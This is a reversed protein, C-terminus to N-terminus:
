VASEDGIGSRALLDSVLELRLLPNDLSMLGQKVRTPLPLLEGWRNAVWACDAYRADNAKPWPASADRERLRQHVQRLARATHALDNPIAVDADAPLLTVDAVWLGHKLRTKHDIRFRQEGHCQVSLLGPQVQQLAAIHALTGVSEFQEEPAGAVRVESGRSLAVVGFPAQAGHCRRMLDLYRVEFVRLPLLGGPFLVTGLPFLPLSALTLAPETM